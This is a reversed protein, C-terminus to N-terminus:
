FDCCERKGNRMYVNVNVSLEISMFQRMSIKNVNAYRKTKLKEVNIEDSPHKWIFISNFLSYNKHNPFLFYSM